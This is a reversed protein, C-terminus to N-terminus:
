TTRPMASSSCRPSCTTAIASPRHGAHAPLRPLPDAPSLQPVGRGPPFRRAPQAPSRRRGRGPSLRPRRLGRLGRQFLWAAAAGLSRGSRARPVVALQGHLLGAPGASRRREAPRVPRLAHRPQADRARGARCGRGAAPAGPWRCGCQRHVGAPAPLHAPGPRHCPGLLSEVPAVVLAAAYRFPVPGDPQGGQKRCGIGLPTRCRRLSTDRGGQRSAVRVQRVMRARDRCLRSLPEGSGLPGGLPRRAHRVAARNRVRLEPSPWGASRTTAPSRRALRDAALGRQGLQDERQWGGILPIPYRSPGDVRHVGKM